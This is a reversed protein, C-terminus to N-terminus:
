CLPPALPPSLGRAFIKSGILLSPSSIWSKKIDLIRSFILNVIWGAPYGTPRIDISSILSRWIIIHQKSVNITSNSIQGSIRDAPYGTQGSIRGHININIKPEKSFSMFTENTKFVTKSSYFFKKKTKLSVLNKEELLLHALQM